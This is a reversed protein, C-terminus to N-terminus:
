HLTTKDDNNEENEVRAQVSAFMWFRRSEGETCNTGYMNSDECLECVLGAFGTQVSNSLVSINKEKMGSNQGACYMRLVQRVYAIRNNALEVM